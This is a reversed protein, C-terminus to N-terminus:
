FLMPTPLLALAVLVLPSDWVRTAVARPLPSGAQHKGPMTRHRTARRTTARRTTARRMTARRLGAAAALVSCWPHGQPWGALTNNDRRISVRAQGQLSLGAETHSPALAFLYQRTFWCGRSGRNIQVSTTSLCVATGRNYGSAKRKQALILWFTPVLPWLSSPTFRRHQLLCWRLKSPILMRQQGHDSSPSYFPRQPLLSPQTQQPVRRVSALHGRCAAPEATQKKQHLLYNGGKYLAALDKAM